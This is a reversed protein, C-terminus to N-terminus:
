WGGTLTVDGDAAVTFNGGTVGTGSWGGSPLHLNVSTGAPIGEFHFKRTLGAAGTVDPTESIKIEKGDSTVLSFNLKFVDGKIEYGKFITKATGGTLTWAKYNRPQSKWKLPPNLKAFDKDVVPKTYYTDIWEPKTWSAFYEGVAEKFYTTGAPMFWSAYHPRHFFPLGEASETPEAMTGGKAGGNWAMYLQCTPLDYMIWMTSSLAVKLQRSRQITTVREVFPNDPRAAFVEAGLLLGFAMALHFKNMGNEGFKM